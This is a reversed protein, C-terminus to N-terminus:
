LADAKNFPLDAQQMRVTVTQCIHGLEESNSCRLAPPQYLHDEKCAQNSRNDAPLVCNNQHAQSQASHANRHLVTSHRLFIGCIKLILSFSYIFPKKVVLKQM